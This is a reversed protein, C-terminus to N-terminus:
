HKTLLVMFKSTIFKFLVPKCIANIGGLLIVIIFTMCGYHRYPLSWLTIDMVYHRCCLPPKMKKLTKRPNQYNVASLNPGRFVFFPALSVSFHIKNESFLLFLSKKNRVNCLTWLLITVQEQKRHVDM